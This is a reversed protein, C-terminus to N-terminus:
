RVCKRALKMMLRARECNGKAANMHTHSAKVEEDSLPPRDADLTSAERELRKAIHRLLVPVSEVGCEAVAGNLAGTFVGQLQEIQAESLEKAQKPAPAETAMARAGPKPDPAPYSNM